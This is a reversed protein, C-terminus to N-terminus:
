KQIESESKVVLLTEMLAKPNPFYDEQVKEIDYWASDSKLCRAFKDAYGDDIYVHSYIVPDSFASNLIGICQYESHLMVEDFEKSYNVVDLVACSSLYMMLDLGTHPLPGVNHIISYFRQFKKKWLFDKITTGVVKNTRVTRITTAFRLPVYGDKKATKPEDYWKIYERLLGEIDVTRQVDESTVLVSKDVYLRLPHKKAGFM